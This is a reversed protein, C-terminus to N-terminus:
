LPNASSRDRYKAAEAGECPVDSTTVLDPHLGDMRGGEGEGKCGKQVEPDTLSTHMILIKTGGVGAKSSELNQLNSPRLKQVTDLYGAYPLPLM